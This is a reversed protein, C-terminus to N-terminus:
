QILEQRWSVPAPTEQVTPLHQKVDLVVVCEKHATDKGGLRQAGTQVAAAAFPSEDVSRADLAVM